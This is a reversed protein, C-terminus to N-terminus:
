KKKVSYNKNHFLNNWIKALYNVFFITKINQHWQFVFLYQLSLNISLCDPLSVTAKSPDVTENFKYPFHSFSDIHNKNRAVFHHDSLLFYLAVTNYFRFM